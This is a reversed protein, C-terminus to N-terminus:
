PKRDSNSGAGKIVEGAPDDIKKRGPHPRTKMYEVAADRDGAEVLEFYRRWEFWADPLSEGADILRQRIAKYEASDRVTDDPRLQDGEQAVYNALRFGFRDDAFPSAGNELLFLVIDLRKMTYAIHIAPRQSDSSVQNVDVGQQVLLQVKELADFSSYIAARLCGSKHRDYIIDPDGGYELVLELDKAALHWAAAYTVSMGKGFRKSCGGDSTMKRNPDAGRELLLEMIRLDDDPICWILPSMGDALEANADVGDNLLAEVQVVDGERIAQLLRMVAPDSTVDGAQLGYVTSFPSSSRPDDRFTQQAVVDSQCLLVWLAVAIYDYPRLRPSSPVTTRPWSRVSSASFCEPLGHDAAALGAREPQHCTCTEVIMCPECELGKRCLSTQIM